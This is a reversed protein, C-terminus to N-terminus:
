INLKVINMSIRQARYIYLVARGLLVGKPYEWGM